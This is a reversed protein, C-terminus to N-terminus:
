IGPYLRWCAYFAEVDDTPEVLKGVAKYTGDTQPEAVLFYGPVNALAISVFAYAGNIAPVISWDVNANKGSQNVETFTIPKSLSTVSMNMTMVKKLANSASITNIPANETSLETANKEGLIFKRASDAPDDTNADIAVQSIAGSSNLFYRKGIASEFRYATTGAIIKSPEYVIYPRIDEQLFKVGSADSARLVKQAAVGDALGGDRLVVLLVDNAYTTDKQIKVSEVAIGTTSGPSIDYYPEVEGTEFTITLSGIGYGKAQRPPSPDNSNMTAVGNDAFADNMTNIFKTGNNWLTTVLNNAATTPVYRSESIKAQLQQSSPKSFVVRMMKYRDTDKYCIIFVREDKSISEQRYRYKETSPIDFEQVPKFADKSTFTGLPTVSTIQINKLAQISNLKVNFNSATTTLVNGNTFEKIPKTGRTYGLTDTKSITLTNSANGSNIIFKWGDSGLTDLASAPTPFLRYISLLKTPVGDCNTVYKKKTIGYCRKLAREQDNIDSTTSNASTYMTNFVAIARAVASSENRRSMEDKIELVAQTDVLSNKIPAWSGTAQCARYPNGEKESNLATTYEDPYKLGSYNNGMTPYTSPALEGTTNRYLFDLCKGDIGDFDQEEFRMKTGDAERVIRQCPNTADKGFLAQSAENIAALRETDSLSLLRGSEGTAVSVYREKLFDVIEQQTRPEKLRKGPNKADYDKYLLLRRNTAAATADSISPYLKGEATGGVSTFCDTICGTSDAEDIGNDCVTRKARNLYTENTYLAGNCRARDETFVPKDFYAPIQVTFTFQANQHDPSWLWYQNQNIPVMGKGSAPKPTSIRESDNFRGNRSYLKLRDILQAKDLISSTGVKIIHNEVPVNINQYEDAKETNYEMQICIGRYNPYTDADQSSYKAVRMSQPIDREDAQKYYTYFNKVAPKPFVDGSSSTVATLYKASPKIGYLWVGSASLDVMNVGGSNTYKTCIENTSSITTSFPNENITGSRVIYKKGDAAFGADCYNMGSQQAKSILQDVTAIKCDISNALTIAASLDRTETPFGVFFVEPIGRPRHPYEQSIDFSIENGPVAEITFYITNNTFTTTGSSSVINDQTSATHKSTLTYTGLTSGGKIVKIFTRGTGTPVVVRLRIQGSLSSTDTLNRPGYYVYNTADGSICARCYSGSMDTGDASTINIGTAAFGGKNQLEQCNLQKAANMCKEHEGAVFFYGEACTGYSPRLSRGAALDVNKDGLSLYMGGIGKNDINNVTVSDKICVGCSKKPDDPFADHISANNNEKSNTNLLNCLDQRKIAAGDRKTEKATGSDYRHSMTNAECKMADELRTSKPPLREEVYGVSQDTTDTALLANRFYNVSDNLIASFKGTANDKKLTIDAAKVYGSARPTIDVTELASKINKNLAKLATNSSQPAGVIVKTDTSGVDSPTDFAGRDRDLQLFNLFNYRQRGEEVYDARTKPASGLTVAYSATASKCSEQSNQSGQFPEEITKSIWPILFSLVAVLLVTLVILFLINMM